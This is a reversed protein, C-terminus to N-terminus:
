KVTIGQSALFQKAADESMGHKKAYSSLTSSSITGGVSSSSPKESMSIGRDRLGSIAHNVSDRENDLAYQIAPKIGSWAKPSIVDPLISSAREQGGETGQGSKNLAQALQSKAEMLYTHLQNIDPDSLSKESWNEIKGLSQVKSFGVKQILPDIKDILGPLANEAVEINASRRGLVGAEQKVETAMAPGTVFMNAIETPSKDPNQHVLTRLNDVLQRQAQVSRTALNPLVTALQARVDRVVNDEPNNPDLVGAKRDAIRQNRETIEGRLNEERLPAESLSKEKTQLDLQTKLDEQREATHAVQARLDSSNFPKHNEAIAGARAQGYKLAIPNGNKALNALFADQKDGSWDALDAPLKHASDQDQLRQIALSRGTTIMADNIAAERAGFVALQQPDKKQASTLSDWDDLLRSRQQNALSTATLLTQTETASLEAFNKRDQIRRSENQLQVQKEQQARDQLGLLTQADFKGSQAALRYVDQMATPSNADVEKMLGSLAKMSQDKQFQRYNESMLAQTKEGEVFANQFQNVDGSAIIAAGESTFQAM